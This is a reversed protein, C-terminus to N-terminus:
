PHAALYDLQALVSLEAAPWLSEDVDAYVRRVVDHATTAGAAVAARVQELRQARHLLYAAAREGADGGAPGHGPLLTSSAGVDRLTELSALYEGLRGDPHAVVTTGRGLITDGTLLAHEGDDGTVVFCVSDSTHGPTAMVRIQLGAVTEAAADSSWPVADICFTPDAAVVPAGTMEHFRRAGASHDPHGHTLLVLGVPGHGAVAQLHAEDLPGPDVVVADRGHDGRLVYTNTGELTMPSPNDARVLTCWSPLSPSELRTM